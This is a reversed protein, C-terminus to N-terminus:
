LATNPLYTELVTVWGKTGDSTVVQVAKSDLGRAMLHQFFASWTDWHEDEAVEYYLLHYRGDPWVALAALIVREQGGLKRDSTVAATSGPQARPTFFRSESAM